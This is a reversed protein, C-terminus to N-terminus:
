LILINVVLLRCRRYLIADINVYGSAIIWADIPFTASTLETNYWGTSEAFLKIYIHNPAFSIYCPINLEESIIKYLYPLSHCNGKGTELLKSVFMKSWDQQGLVDEFDYSYPTHVFLHTSDLPILISDTIVRFVSAHKTIFEKDQNEYNILQTSSIINVLKSLVKIEENLDDKNLNGNYFANETEYVANKFSLPISDELMGNIFDYSTQYHSIEKNDNQANLTFINFVTTGLLYVIMKKYVEM